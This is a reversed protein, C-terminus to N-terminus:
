WSSFSGFDYSAEKRKKNPQPPPEDAKTKSAAAAATAGPAIYKGVGERLPKLPGRVANGSRASTSTVKSGSEAQLREAEETRLRALEQDAEAFPDVFVHAATIVIDEIPRDKNDVEVKEITSLTDLGGVLGGFVTHKNDLHKCSRYTIFFQSKNTNPGSNAMSLVGRGNHGLNPRFEDAFPEGWISQGGEGTGQPDGGQIMFNRISRHFKTGNYYGSACHKIFNECARPTQDCHLELNLPGVNTVLRVYGKKKVHKYRVTDDDVVAAEHELVPEMATSTFGAAVVGTSFHAANFKDAKKQEKVEKQAPKYERDLEELVDKTVSNVKKLRAQPDLRSREAEEDTVKINNKIHYFASLNFKQLNKPDQITIIDKRTFPEDTVLEKWNQPKINLEEVAEYSMVNGTTKIAVIHSNETFVKFLVPCHYKGDSNKFFNLKILAKAELPKGTIPDIKYKRVFPVVHLLDFVHGDATCLPNEFPQLSLACHTFPLRRFERDEPRTPRHGGYQTAWETATLYLKDKQHQKKGM